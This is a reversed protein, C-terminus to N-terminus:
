RTATMSPKPRKTARRGAACALAAASCSTPGKRSRQACRSVVCPSTLAAPAGHTCSCAQSRPARADAMLNRSTEPPVAGPACCSLGASATIRAAHGTSLLCPSLRPHRSCAGMAKAARHSTKLRASAAQPESAAGNTAGTRLQTSAANSARGCPHQRWTTAEARSANVGCCCCLPPRLPLPTM